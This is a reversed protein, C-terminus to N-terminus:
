NSRDLEQPIHYSIRRILLFKIIHCQRPLQRNHYCKWWTTAIRMLGPELLVPKTLVVCMGKRWQHLIIRLNHSLEAVNIFHHWDKSDKSTFLVLICSIYGANALASISGLNTTSSSSSNITDPSAKSASSSSSSPQLECSSLVWGIDLIRVKDLNSLM